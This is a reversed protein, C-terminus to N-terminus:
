ASLPRSLSQWAGLTAYPRGKGTVEDRGKERGRHIRPALFATLTAKPGDPFILAGIQIQKCRTATGCGLM